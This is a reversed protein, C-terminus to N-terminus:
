TSQFVSAPILRILRELTRCGPITSTMGRVWEFVGVAVGAGALVEVLL